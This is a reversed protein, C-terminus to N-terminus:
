RLREADRALAVLQATLATLEAQDAGEAVATAVDEAACRAAFWRDSLDSVEQASLVVSDEPIGTGKVSNRHEYARQRCSQRCYRRRRGVESEGIERGCWLCSSGQRRSM